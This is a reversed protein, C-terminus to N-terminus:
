AVGRRLRGCCNRLQWPSLGHPGFPTPSIPQPERLTSYVPFYGRDSTWCSYLPDLPPTRLLPSTLSPPLACPYSITATPMQALTTRDRVRGVKAGKDIGRFCGPANLAVRPSVVGGYM